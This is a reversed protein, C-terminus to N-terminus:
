LSNFEDINLTSLEFGMQRAIRLKDEAEGYNWFSKKAAEIVEKDQIGKAKCYVEIDHTGNNDYGINPLRHVRVRRAFTTYQNSDEKVPFWTDPCLGAIRAIRAKVDTIGIIVIALLGETATYLNKINKYINNSLVESEDIILMPNNSATLETKQIINDLLVGTTRKKYKIGMCENIALLLKNWSYKRDTKLYYVDSNESVFKRVVVSKGIGTNGVILRMDSLSKCRGAISMMQRYQRLTTVLENAHSEYNLIKSSVQNVLKDAFQRKDCMIESITSASRNTFAAIESNKLGKRQKLDILRERLEKQAPSIEIKKVM